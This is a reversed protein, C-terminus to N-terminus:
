LSVNPRAHKIATGAVLKVIISVVFIDIKKSCNLFQRKKRLIVWFRWHLREFHSEGGDNKWGVCLKRCSFCSSPLPQGDGRKAGELTPKTSWALCASHVCSTIPPPPPSLSCVSASLVAVRTFEAPLSIFFLFVLWSLSLRWTKVSGGTRAGGRFDGWM